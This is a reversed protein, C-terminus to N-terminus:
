THHTYNVGWLNKLKIWAKYKAIRIKCWNKETCKLVRVRVRPELKIIKRSKPNAMAYGIIPNNNKKNAIIIGYMYRTSIMPAQLWGQHGAIDEVKIWQYFSTLFKLPEGKSHITWNIPYRGSPGARLNVQNARLYIFKHKKHIRSLQLTQQSVKHTHSIHNTSNKGYSCLSSLCIIFFSLFYIYGDSKFIEIKLSSFLTVKKAYFHRSYRWYERIKM